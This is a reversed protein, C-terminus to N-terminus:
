IEDLDVQGSSVADETMVKKILIQASSVFRDPRMVKVLIMKKLLRVNENTVSPDDGNMWPEPVETEATPMDMFDNWTVPDSKISDILGEFMKSNDLEELLAVQKDNLRGDILDKSNINDPETLAKPNLFIHFLEM